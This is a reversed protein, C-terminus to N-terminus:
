DLQFTMGEMGPSVQFPPQLEALSEAIVRDLLDDSHAPDHHFPVFRKVGALGAFRIADPISSHGFGLRAQYELTTYQSDHLLLDAGEALAYGSTWEGKRPFTQCGLAPEHDPLYTLAVGREQIRYGVTPNPHLIMQASVLFEGIEISRTALEHFHLVSLLDRVRVPFLPPSLYRKLRAELNLTTSAPGWIHVEVGPRRLPMFFPLGQVHDMHLHTLLIHVCTLDPPLQLGLLRIGTGADLVLLSGESGTVSVCSTNGGYRVTDPGPSALSGRTGWLTVKM